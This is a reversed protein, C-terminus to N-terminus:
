IIDYRVPTTRYKKSDQWYFRVAGIRFDVFGYENPSVGKPLKWTKAESTIEPADNWHRGKKLYVDVAAAFEAFTNVEVTKTENVWRHPYFTVPRNVEHSTNIKIKM